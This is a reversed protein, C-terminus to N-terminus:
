VYTMLSIVAKKKAKERQVTSCFALCLNSRVRGRCREPGIAKPLETENGGIRSGEASVM